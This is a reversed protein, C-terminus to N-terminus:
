PQFLSDAVSGLAATVQTWADVADLFYWLAVALGINTLVTRAKGVWMWFRLKPLPATEDAGVKIEKAHSDLM